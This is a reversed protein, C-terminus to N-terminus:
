HDPKNCPASNEGVIQSNSAYSPRVVAMDKGMEGGGMVGREAM